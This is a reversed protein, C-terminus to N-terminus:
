KTAPRCRIFTHIATLSRQRPVVAMILTGDHRYIMIYLLDSGTHADDEPVFLPTLKKYIDHRNETIIDDTTLSSLERAVYLARGRIEADLMATGERYFFLGVLFSVLLLAVAIFFSIRCGVGGWWRVAFQHMRALIHSRIKKKDAM